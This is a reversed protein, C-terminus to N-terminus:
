KPISGRFSPYGLKIGLFDKLYNNRVRQNSLMTYGGRNLVEQESISRPWPLSDRECIYKVVDRAQTPADDNVCFLPPLKGDYRICSVIINALDEVHIRNTWQSGDGVLSYTGARLSIAVGRDDGYIAPLRLSTATIAGSSESAVQNYIKESELRAASQPNWPAPTTAEDVWSGDRTGFVGTTSLYIIRMVKTSTVVKAVNRVGAVAKSIDDGGSRFPPVSDVVIEIDPYRDFLPKISEQDDLEVKISYWGLAEWKARQEDNRSTIVFSGPQLREAVRNLTYGGGLLLIKPSISAVAV